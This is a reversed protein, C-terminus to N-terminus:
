ENAEGLIMLYPGNDLGINREINFTSKDIVSLSNGDISSVYINQTDGIIDYPNSGVEISSKVTRDEKNIRFVNNSGHCIVYIYPSTNDGYFDVPMTGVEVRDIEEGREPDYVYVDKNLTGYSGHGGVWVYRGDFFIGNPREVISFKNLEKKLDIDIVSITSDKANLVYLIEKKPNYAMSIPLNGVSVEAMIKNNNLNIFGISNNISNAFILLNDEPLYLLDKVGKGVEFIKKLQGNILDLSYLYEENEGSIVVKNKDLKQMATIRYDLDNTTIENNKLNVFSIKSEKIHSVILQEKLSPPVSIRDKNCGMLLLCLLILVIINKKM